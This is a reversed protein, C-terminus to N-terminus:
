IEIITNLIFILVVFNGLSNSQKSELNIPVALIEAAENIEDDDKPESISNNESQFSENNFYVSEALRDLTLENNLENAVQKIIIEFEKQFVECIVDDYVNLEIDKRLKIYNLSFNKIIDVLIEDFYSELVNNLQNLHIQEEQKRLLEKEKQKQENEFRTKEITKILPLTETCIKKVQEQVVNDLIQHSIEKALDRHTLVFEASVEKVVSLYLTEFLSESQQDLIKEKISVSSDQDRKKLIDEFLNKPQGASPKTPKSIDKFLSPVPVTEAPKEFSGFSGFSTGPFSSTNTNNANMTTFINKVPKSGIVSSFPNSDPKSSIVSSFPNSDPKSSIISSFPNSDPKSFLSTQPQSSTAAEFVAANFISPRTAPQVLKPKIATTKTKNDASQKLSKNKSETSSSSSTSAKRGFTSVNSPEHNDSKKFRISNKVIKEAIKVTPSIKPKRLKLFSNAVSHQQQQQEVSGALTDGLNARKQRAYDFMKEIEDSEYFGDENFCTSLEYAANFDFRSNYNNLASGAIIQSLCKEKTCSKSMLRQDFKAEVLLTSRRAKLPDEASKVLKFCSYQSTSPMIVNQEDIELRFSDCYDYLENESEFCLIENLKSLPFSKIQQAKQNLSSFISKFAEARVAYFYRHLICAQLYHCQDSKILRFFRVYNRSNFAFYVKLAFKVHSSNRINAPWRQIESLIDSQNLNLMIIYSRFEPENPSPAHNQNSSATHYNTEYFQRLSQFCNKLNEENIKFDFVNSSQECLRYACMIHFRACQEIIIVGGLGNTILQNNPEHQTIHSTFRDNLLLRQQIIDKRISRTRNWVFDYWDGVSFSTEDYTNELEIQPIIHNILYLMTDFLIHIPRLENPLPLDQDASSRSYEKVMLNHNIAENEDFEYRNCLSLTERSYREKEPCMDM